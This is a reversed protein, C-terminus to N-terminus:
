YEIDFRGETILLPNPTEEGTAVLSFSFTGAIRSDTFTTVEISGSGNSAGAIWSQDPGITVAVSVFQGAGVSYTGLGEDPFAFAIARDSTSVGNVNIRGNNRSLTPLTAVFPTGHIRATLPGALPVTLGEGCATSLLALALACATSSLRNM